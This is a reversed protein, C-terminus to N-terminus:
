LPQCEGTYLALARLGSFRSQPAFNVVKVLLDGM